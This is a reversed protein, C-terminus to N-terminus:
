GHLMKGVYDRTKLYKLIFGWEMQVLDFDEKGEVRKIVAKPGYEFGSVLDRHLFNYHAVAKEITKLRIFEAHTIKQGNYYCM